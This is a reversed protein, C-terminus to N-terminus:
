GSGEPAAMTIVWSFRVRSAPSKVRPAAAFLAPGEAGGVEIVVGRAAELGVRGVAIEGRDIGAGAEGLTAGTEVAGILAIGKAV